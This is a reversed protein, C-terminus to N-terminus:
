HYLDFKEGTRLSIELDEELLRKDIQPLLERFEKRDLLKIFTRLVGRETPHAPDVFNTADANLPDRSMDFFEIGLDAFRKATAGNRLERWEGAYSRYSSDTDLFDTAIKLIPYQIAVLRFERLAAIESLKKLHKFQRESLHEGGPFSGIILEVSRALRSASIERYIPPVLVSGDNRFGYRARIAETGLLRNHDITEFQDQEIAALISDFRWNKHAIFEAVDHLKRRHSNIGQRYDMPRERRWDDALQDGFLFYDLAVIVVKPRAISTARDVFEVVQDLPWATLCANYTKYPRFMQERANGCRSSGVLLVEPQTLKIREIKYPAYDPFGGAWLLREDKQQEAAITSLPVTAWLKWAAWEVFCLSALLLAVSLVGIITLYQQLPPNLQAESLTSSSVVDSKADM